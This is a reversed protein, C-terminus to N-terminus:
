LINANKRISRYGCVRLYKGKTTSQAFVKKENAIQGKVININLVSFGLFKSDVRVKRQNEKMTKISLLDKRMRPSTLYVVANGFKQNVFFLIRKKLSLEKM